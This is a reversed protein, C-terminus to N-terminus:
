VERSLGMEEMESELFAYTLRAMERYFQQRSYDMVGKCCKFVWKSLHQAFFDRQLEAYKLAADENGDNWKRSEEMALRGIFALELGIHDPFGKFDEPLTFGSKKYFAMVVAAAEQSLLGNLWVSEYPSISGPLILLRAYEESLMEIIEKEEHNFFDDSLELGLDKLAELIDKDKLSRLFDSSVERLFVASFFLYLRARSEATKTKDLDNSM